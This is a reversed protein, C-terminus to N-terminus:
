LWLWKMFRLGRPYLYEKNPEMVNKNLTTQTFEIAKIKKGQQVLTNVNTKIEFDTVLKWNKLHFSVIVKLLISCAVMRAVDTLLRDFFVILVIQFCIM